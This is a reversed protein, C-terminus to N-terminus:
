PPQLGEHLPHRLGDCLEERANPGGMQRPTMQDWGAQVAEEFVQVLRGHTIPFVRDFLYGQRHRKRTCSRRLCCAPGSGIWCKRFVRSHIPVRPAAEPEPRWLWNDDGVVIQAWAGCDGLLRFASEISGNQAQVGVCCHEPVGRRIPDDFIALGVLSWHENGNSTLVPCDRVGGGASLRLWGSCTICRLRNRRFSNHRDAGM